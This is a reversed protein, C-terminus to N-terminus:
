AGNGGEALGLATKLRARARSINTHVAAPNMNLATVIEDTDAGTLKFAMVARQSTPLASIAKLTEALKESVELHTVPDIGGPLEPVQDTLVERTRGRHRLYAHFAVRRLYARPHELSRWRDPLLKLLADHALDDAEHTNAGIYVLFATLHKKEARYFSPFDARQATQALADLGKQPPPPGVQGATTPPESM